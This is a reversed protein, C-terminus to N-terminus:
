RVRIRSLLHLNYSLNDSNGKALSVGAAAENEWSSSTEAPLSQPSALLSQASALLALTVLGTVATKFSLSLSNM